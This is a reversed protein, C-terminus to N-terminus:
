LDMTIVWRYAWRLGSNLRAATLRISLMQFTRALGESPTM